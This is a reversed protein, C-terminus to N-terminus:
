LRARMKLKPRSKTAECRQCPVNKAKCADSGPQKVECAFDAAECSYNYAPVDTRSCLEYFPYRHHIANCESAHATIQWTCGVCWTIGIIYMHVPLCSWRLHARTGVRTTRIMYRLLHTFRKRYHTFPMVEYATGQAGASVVLVM